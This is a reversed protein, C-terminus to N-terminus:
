RKVLPRSKRAKPLESLSVVPQAAGVSMQGEVGRGWRLGLEAEVKQYVQLTAQAAKEWSFHMVREFGEGILKNRLAPETILRHMLCALELSDRPSFFLAAGNAVEQLSPTSAAIVPCGCAMAEILPIGFGEYLSPIVLGVASSYYGALDEDSVYDVFVVDGELGLHRIQQLTVQRFEATRGASGVKVLKLGPVTSGRKLLSFAALLTGLNKRPRETGVYLLYPFDYSRGAVPKFVNRDVGNYIVTIKRAPISLYQMLDTKTCKSVAVIHQAKRLGLVDLKLGLKQPITEKAFPFCIRVLDHVTVIFPKGLFLGYRSFHQSPFHVLYPSQRLNNLLRLSDKLTLYRRTEILPIDIRKALEKSYRDIGSSELTTVLTM